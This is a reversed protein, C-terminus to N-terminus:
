KLVLKKPKKVLYGWVYMYKKKLKLGNKKNKFKQKYLNNNSIKTKKKQCMNGTDALGRHM